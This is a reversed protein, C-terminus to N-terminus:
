IYCEKQKLLHMEASSISSFVSIDTNCLNSINRYVMAMATDVPKTCVIAISYFVGEKCKINQIDMIGQLHAPNLDSESCNMKVLVRLHKVNPNVILDVERWISNVDTLNVTGTFNISLLEKNKNFTYQIM